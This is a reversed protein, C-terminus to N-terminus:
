LWLHHQKFIFFYIYIVESSVSCCTTINGEGRNQLLPYAYCIILQNTARPLYTLNFYVRLLETTLFYNAWKNTGPASLM